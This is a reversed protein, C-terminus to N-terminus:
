SSKIQRITDPSLYLNRLEGNHLKRWEGMVEDRKPGFIKRLVRNDFVRANGITPKFINERGVKANFNGLVIKMDYRPFQDFGRGLEGYFSDKVDDGKDDCQADV